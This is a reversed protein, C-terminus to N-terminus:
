MLADMQVGAIRPSGEAGQFLGARGLVHGVPCHQAPILPPLLASLHAADDTATFASPSFAICAALVVSPSRPPRVSNRVVWYKMGTEKDTGYGVVEVDHDLETDGSRDVFVGPVTFAAAIAAAAVAAVSRTADM